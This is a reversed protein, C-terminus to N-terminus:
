RVDGGIENLQRAEMEERTRIWYNDTQWFSVYLEGADTYIPRQEFGEGWGDSYQGTCYDKLRQVAEPSLQGHVMCTAVGYLVGEKIEVTPHLFLVKQRVEDDERYYAMLGRVEEDPLKEKEIQDLIVARYDALVRGDLQIADDEDIYEDWEPYVRGLLPSYLKLVSLEEM